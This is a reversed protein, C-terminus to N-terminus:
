VFNVKLAVRRLPNEYYGFPGYLLCSQLVNTSSHVSDMYRDGTFLVQKLFPFRKTKFPVPIHNNQMNHPVSALEPFSEQIMKVYDLKGIKTPLV